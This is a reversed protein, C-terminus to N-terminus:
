AVIEAATEVTEAIVPAADAATETVADVVGTLKVGYKKGIYFSGGVLAMAGVTLAARKGIKKWDIDKVKAIKSDVAAEIKKTEM